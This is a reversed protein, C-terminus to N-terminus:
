TYTMFKDTYDSKKPAIEPRLFAPLPIRGGHKLIDLSKKFARGFTKSDEDTVDNRKRHARYLKEMLRRQQSMLQVDAVRDQVTTFWNKKAQSISQELWKWGRTQPSINKEKAYNVVMALEVLDRDVWMTEDGDDFKVKFEVTKGHEVRHDVICIIDATREMDGVWKWGLKDSLNHEWAYEALLEPIETKIDILRQWIKKGNEYLVQVETFGGKGRHSLIGKVVSRDKMLEDYTLTTKLEGSQVVYMDDETKCRVVGERWQGDIQIPVDMGINEDDEELHWWYDSTSDSDVDNSTKVKNELLSLQQEDWLVFFRDGDLDSDNIRGPLSTSDNQGPSSFMIAGFSLSCLHEWDEDSMQEPKTTIVPLIMADGVETCPSRTVFVKRQRRGGIGFGTIFVTGEPLCGKTSDCVGTLSAHGLTEFHVSKTNYDSIAGEPVGCGVLLQSIMDGLPSLDNEQTKTPKRTSNPNLQREINMSVASPCINNFLLFVTIFSKKKAKSGGVKKMSCPLQIKKIGNTRVLMGKFIGFDPSIVRVQVAVANKAENNHGILRELLNCPIFGCGMTANECIDITEFFQKPLEWMYPKLENKFSYRKAPSVLLELRSSCKGPTLALDSFDAIADLEEQISTHPKHSIYFAKVTSGVPNHPGFKSQNFNGQELKSVVLSFTEDGITMTKPLVIKGSLSTETVCVRESGFKWRLFFDDNSERLVQLPGKSEIAYESRIRHAPAQPIKRFQIRGDDRSSSVPRTNKSITTRGHAQLPTRKTGWGYLPVNSIAPSPKSEQKTEFECANLANVNISADARCTMTTAVSSWGGRSRNTTAQSAMKSALSTDQERLRPSSRKPTAHEATTTSGFGCHPPNTTAKRTAHATMTISGWESRSPNATVVAPQSEQKTGWGSLRPSTRRPTSYSISPHPTPPNTGWGSCPNKSIAVAAEQSRWESRSPNATVVAAQSSQKTGWGSLRPSTRRPTSYLISPHPKPLKTGLGSCPKKSEQAGIDFATTENTSADTSCPLEKPSWSVKRMQTSPRGTEKVEKTKGWVIARPSSSSSASLDRSGWCSGQTDGAEHRKSRKAQTDTNSDTSGYKSTDLLCPLNEDNNEDDDDDDDDDIVFRKRKPLQIKSCNLRYKLDEEEGDMDDFVASMTATHKRSGLKPNIRQVLPSYRFVTRLKRTKTDLFSISTLPTLQEIPKEFKLFQHNM